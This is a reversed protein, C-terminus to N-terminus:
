RDNAEEWLGACALRPGRVLVSGEAHDLGVLGELNLCSVFCGDGFPLQGAISSYLKSLSLSLEAGRM